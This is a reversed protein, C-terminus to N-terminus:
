SFRMPRPVYENREEVGKFQRALWDCFMTWVQKIGTWIWSLVGKLSEFFDDWPIFYVAAAAGAGFLVGPGIAAVVASANLTTSGVQLCAPGFQLNIFVGSASVEFGALFKGTGVLLGIIVAVSGKWQEWWSGDMSTERMKEFRRRLEDKQFDNLTSSSGRWASRNSDVKIFVDRGLYLKRHHFRKREWWEDLRDNKFTSSGDVLLQDRRSGRNAYLIKLTQIDCASPVDFKIDIIAGSVIMTLNKYSKRDHTDSEIVDQIADQLFDKTTVLILSRGRELRKVNEACVVAIIATRREHWENKITKLVSSRENELFRTSPRFETEDDSAYSSM